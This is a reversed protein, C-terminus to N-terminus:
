AAALAQPNVNAAGDPVDPLPTTATAPLHPDRDISIPRLCGGSKAYSKFMNFWVKHEEAKGSHKPPKMYYSASNSETM